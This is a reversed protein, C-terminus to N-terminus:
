DNEMLHHFMKGVEQFDFMRCDGGGPVYRSMIVIDADLELEKIM